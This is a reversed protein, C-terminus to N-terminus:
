SAGLFVQSNEAPACGCAELPKFRDQLKACQVDLIPPRVSSKKSNRSVSARQRKSTKRFIFSAAGMRTTRWARQYRHRRMKKKVVGEVRHDQRERRHPGHQRARQRLLHKSLFKEKEMREDIADLAEDKDKYKGVRKNAQSVIVGSGSRVDSIIYGDEMGEDFDEEDEEEGEPEDEDEGSGIETDYRDEVYSLERVYGPPFRWIPCTRFRLVPDNTRPIHPTVAEGHTKLRLLPAVHALM